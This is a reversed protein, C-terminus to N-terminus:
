HLPLLKVSRSNEDSSVSAPISSVNSVNTSCRRTNPRSPPHSLTWGLSSSLGGDWQRRSWTSWEVDAVCVDMITVDYKCAHLSRSSTIRVSVRHCTVGSRSGDTRLHPQNNSRASHDWWEDSLASFMRFYVDDYAFALMHEYSISRKVLRRTITSCLTWTRLGFRTLLATSFWGSEIPHRYFLNKIM